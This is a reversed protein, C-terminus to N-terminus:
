TTQKPRQRVGQSATSPTASRESLLRALTTAEELRADLGVACSGPMRLRVGQHTVSSGPWAHVVALLVGRLEDSRLLSRIREPDQGRVTVMGDLVPDGLRIGDSQQKASVSLGPPLGQIPM